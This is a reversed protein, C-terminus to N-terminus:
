YYGGKFLLFMASVLSFCREQPQQCMVHARFASLKMCRVRPWTQQCCLNWPLTTCVSWTASTFTGMMPCQCLNSFLITLFNSTSLLAKSLPSPPWLSPPPYSPPFPSTLQGVSIQCLLRGASTLEGEGCSASGM